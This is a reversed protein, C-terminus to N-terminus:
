SLCVVEYLDDWNENDKEILANKWERKWKKLQKERFFAKTIVGYEEYYVLDHIQYKKTFGDAIDNKHEWIRKRLNDTVGIYITGHPRNALIYVYSKKTIYDKHM